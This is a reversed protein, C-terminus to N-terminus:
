LPMGCNTRCFSALRGALHNERLAQYTPGRWVDDIVHQARADGVVIEGGFDYCCTTVLGDSQVQLTDWFSRCALRNARLKGNAAYRSLCAASPPAVGIGPALYASKFAPAVGIEDALVCAADVEGENASTVVFVWSTKEPAEAAFLRLGGLAADFRDVGCMTRYGAASAAPIGVLIHDVRQAIGAALRENVLVGNTTLSVTAAHPRIADLVEILRPHLTPEGWLAPYCTEVHGVQELVRNVLSLDILTPARHSTLGLSYVCHICRLNCVSATELVLTKLPPMAATM